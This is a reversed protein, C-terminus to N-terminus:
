KRISGRRVSDVLLAALVIFLIIPRVSESAVVNPLAFWVIMVWVCIALSLAGDDVFLGYIQSLGNTLWTMDAFGASREGAPNAAVPM